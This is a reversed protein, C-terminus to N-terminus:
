FSAVLDWGGNDTNNGTGSSNGTGNGFGDCGSGTGDHCDGDTCGLDRAAM